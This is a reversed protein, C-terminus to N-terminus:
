SYSSGDYHIRAILTKSQLNGRNDNFSVFFSTTSDSEYVNVKATADATLSYSLTLEINIASSIKNDTLTYIKLQPVYDNGKLEIVAM